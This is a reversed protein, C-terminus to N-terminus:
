LTIIKDIGEEESPEQFAEEFRDFVSEWLTRDFQGHPNNMRRNVSEERTIRPLVMATITYNSGKALQIVRRRLRKSVTCDDVVINVGTRLFNILTDIESLHVSSELNLNWLYNGAGLMYRIADKSVIVYGEEYLKKAYTTKGSGINGILLVLNKEYKQINM